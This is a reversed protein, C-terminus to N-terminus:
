RDGTGRRGHQRVSRRRDDGRAQLRRADREAPAVRRMWRQVSRAAVHEVEALSGPQHGRHLGLPQQLSRSESHLHNRRRRHGTRRQDGAAAFRVSHETPDREACSAMPARFQQVRRSLVCDAGTSRDDADHVPGDNDTGGSQCARAVCRPRREAMAAGAPFRDRQLLRNGDRRRGASRDRLHRSRAASSNGSARPDRRQRSRRSLHQWRLRAHLDIRKGHDASLAARVATRKWRDGASRAELRIFHDLAGSANTRELSVGTCEM